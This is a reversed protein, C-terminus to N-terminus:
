RIPSIFDHHLLVINESEIFGLIHYFIVLYYVNKM